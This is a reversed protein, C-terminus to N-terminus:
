GENHNISFFFSQQQQFLLCLQNLSPATQKTLPFIVFSIQFPILWILLGSLSVKIYKSM